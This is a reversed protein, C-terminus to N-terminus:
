WRSSRRRRKVWPKGLPHGFSGVQSRALLYVREWRTCVGLSTDRTGPKPLPRGMIRAGRVLARVRVRVLVLPAVATVVNIEVMKAVEAVKAMEAMEAMEAM